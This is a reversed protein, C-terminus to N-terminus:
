EIPLVRVEGLVIADEGQPTTLRKVEPLLYLGIQLKYVGPPVDTPLLLSYREVGEAKVPLGLFPQVDRQARLHWEEDILHVFVRLNESPLARFEWRLDLRLIDGARVEKDFRYGRLTAMGLPLDAEQWPSLPSSLAYLALRTRGILMDSAQYANEVLWKETLGKPFDLGDSIWWIRRYGPLIDKIFDEAWQRALDFDDRLGHVPLPGRCYELLAATHLPDQFVLADGPLSLAEVQRAILRFDERGDRADYYGRSLSFLAVGAALLTWGLAVKELGRTRGRMLRLLFAGALVVLAAQAVLVPWDLTTPGDTEAVRMWLFDLNEPQMLTWHRWVPAYRADFFMRKEYADTRFGQARLTDLYLGFPVALGGIQVLFSLGALAMLAARWPFSEGAKEVVPALGLALFPILPLIHRPGWCDGGFWTTWTGFLLLYAGCLGLLWFTEARRRRWFFAMGPLALLLVPSYVFLGRGPSFLLGYLGRSFPIGFFHLPQGGSTLTGFRVWTYLLFGALALALPFCFIFAKKLFQGPKEKLEPLAPFFGYLFLLSAAIAGDVVRTLLAYGAALGSALLYRSAQTQRYCLLFYFAALVCLATLPESFLYKAYVWANTGLGFLLASLYAVPRSYGLRRLLLFIITGTLATVPIDLLMAVQVDGLAPFLGSFLLLPVLMLSLGPNYKAYLLGDPGFLGNLLGMSRLAEIDLRGRRAISQATAFMAIEDSSHFAGSYTLLYVASLLFFLGFAWLRDGAMKERM